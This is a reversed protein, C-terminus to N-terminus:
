YPNVILELRELMAQNIEEEILHNRQHNERMMELSEDKWNYIVREDKKKYKVTATEWFRDSNNSVTFVTKNYHQIKQTGFLWYTSISKNFPENNTITVQWWPSTAITIFAPYYSLLKALANSMALTSNISYFFLFIVIHKKM